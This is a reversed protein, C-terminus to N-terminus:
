NGSERSELYRTVLAEVEARGVTEPPLRLAHALRRETGRKAALRNLCDGAACIYAGRGPLRRRPDITVGAEGRVLRLLSSQPARGGCVVCRRM